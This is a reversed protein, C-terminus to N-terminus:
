SSPSDSVNFRVNRTHPLKGNSGNESSKLSSKAPEEFRWARQIVTPSLHLDDM